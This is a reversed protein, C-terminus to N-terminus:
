CPDNSVHRQALEVQHLLADIRDQPFGDKVCQELTALVIGEIKAADEKAVGQLGVSFSTERNDITLILGVLVILDLDWRLSDEFGSGPAWNNGLNSEILAKYLPANPGNTLL